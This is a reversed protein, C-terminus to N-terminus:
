GRRHGLRRRPARQREARQPLLRREGPDHRAARPVHLARYTAELQHEFGCGGDGVSAICTFVDPLSRGGLNDTGDLQNYDIFSLGNGLNCPVLTPDCAGNVLQSCRNNTNLKAGKGGPRCNSSPTTPGAGLDSTVVGIHYWAPNGQAGFDQLVKILDPFRAILQAQKPQMSPSDDIMFLIDVKNKVNQEVRVPSEQEVTTTPTEVPPALCAGVGLSCALPALARVLTFTTRSRMPEEKFAM